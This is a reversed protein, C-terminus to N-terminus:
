CGLRNQRVEFVDMLLEQAVTDRQFQQPLFVGVLAALAAQRIKAVRLEALAVAIENFRVVEGHVDAVLRGVAEHHVPGSRLHADAIRGRALRGICVEEDGRKGEAHIAVGLGHRVHLHGAPDLRVDMGEAEEASRRAEEDAVVQLCADDAVALVLIRLEIGDVPFKCVVVARRQKWRPHQSGFVLRCDFPRDPCEGRRDDGAQTVLRDQREM